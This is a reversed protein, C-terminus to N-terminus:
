RVDNDTGSMAYCCPGGTDTGPVAYCVRRYVSHAIGTGSMARASPPVQTLYQFGKSTFAETSPVALIGWGLMPACSSLVLAYCTSQTVIIGCDIM